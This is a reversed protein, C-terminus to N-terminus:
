PRQGQDFGAGQVGTIHVGQGPPQLRAAPIEVRRRRAIGVPGRGALDLRELGQESVPSLWSIESAHLSWLDGVCRRVTHRIDRIVTEEATSDFLVPDFALLLRVRYPRREPSLSEEVDSPDGGQSIGGVSAVVGMLVILFKVFRPSSIMLSKGASVLVAADM